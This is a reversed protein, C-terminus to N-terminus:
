FILHSAHLNMRQTRLETLVKNEKKNVHRYSDARYESLKLCLALEDETLENKYEKVFDWFNEFANETSEIVEESTDFSFQTFWAENTGYRDTDKEKQLLRETILKTLTEKETQSIIADANAIAYLLKGLEAYFLKTSMPHKICFFPANPSLDM